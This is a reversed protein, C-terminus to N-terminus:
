PSTKTTLSFFMHTSLTMPIFKRLVLWPIKWGNFKTVTNKELPLKELFIIGDPCTKQPSFFRLWFFFCFLDLDCPYSVLASGYCLCSNTLNPIPGVRVAQQEGHRNRKKQPPSTSNMSYKMFGKKVPATDEGYM